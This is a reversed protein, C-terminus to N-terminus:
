TPDNLFQVLISGACANESLQVHSGGLFVYTYSNALSAAIEESRFNPTAPDLYGSLFLAPIDSVVNEDTYDPLPEVNLINCAYFYDAADDLADINAFDYASDHPVDDLSLVPDEACVIAFHMMMATGATDADVPLLLPFLLGLQRNELSAMSSPLLSITFSTYLADVVARSALVDDMVIDIEEDTTSRPDKVTVTLPDAALAMISDNFLTTLDPYAAHCAENADCAAAIRDMTVQFKRSTDEAWTPMALSTSGDLIVGALIAPFDRMIHQALVTGYSQGYFFIQDYGFVTRIDNVDAANEISDFANFNVDNAVHRDYCAQTAATIADRRAEGRTGASGTELRATTLDPCDLYPQAYLTGRQNFFVIDRHTLVDAVNPLDSTLKQAFSMINGGPGGAALFIPPEGTNAKSILRVVPISLTRDNDVGHEEPVIVYGCDVGDINYEPLFCEGLQEFRPVTADQALTTGTMVLFVLMGFIGALQRVSKKM